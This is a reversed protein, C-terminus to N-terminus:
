EPARTSVRAEADWAPSYTVPTLSYTIPAPDRLPQPHGEQSRPGSASAWPVRPGSVLTGARGKPAQAREGAQARDQTLLLPTATPAPTPLPTWGRLRQLVRQRGAWPELRTRRDWSITSGGLPCTSVSRASVKESCTPRWTVPTHPPQLGGEQPPPQVAPQEGNPASPSSCRPTLTHTCVRQRPSVGVGWIFCVGRSETHLGSRGVQGTPCPGAQAGRATRSGARARCACTRGSWRATPMSGGERRDMGRGSCSESRSQALSVGLAVEWGPGPEAPRAASGARVGVACRPETHTNKPPPAPKNSHLKRLTCKM